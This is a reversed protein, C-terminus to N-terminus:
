FEFFFFSWFALPSNGSLIEELIRLSQSLFPGFCFVTCIACCFKEGFFIIKQGFSQISESFWSTSFPSSIGIYKTQKRVRGTSAVALIHFGWGWVWPVSM